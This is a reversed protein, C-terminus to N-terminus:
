DTIIIHYKENQAGYVLTASDNGYVRRGATIWNAVTNKHSRLMGPWVPSFFVTILSGLERRCVQFYDEASFFNTGSTM